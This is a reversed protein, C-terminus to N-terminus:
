YPFETNAPEIGADDLRTSNILMSWWSQTTSSSLISGDEYIYGATTSSTCGSGNASGVTGPNVYAGTFAETEVSGSQEVIAQMTTIAPSPLTTLHWAPNSLQPQYLYQTAPPLVSCSSTAPAVSVVESIPTPGNTMAVVVTKAYLQDPTAGAPLTFNHWTSSSSLYESLVSVGNQDSAVYAELPPNSGPVVMATISHHPFSQSANPINHGVIGTNAHWNGQTDDYFEILHGNCSTFVVPVANYIVAAPSINADCGGVSVANSIDRYNFGSPNGSYERISDTLYFEILHGSSSIGFIAPTPDTPMNPNTPDNANVVIAVPNYVPQAAGQSGVAGLDTWTGSAPLYSFGHLIQTSSNNETALAFVDVETGDGYTPYSVIAPQGKNTVLSLCPSIQHGSNNNSLTQSIDVPASWGPSKGYGPTSSQYYSVM